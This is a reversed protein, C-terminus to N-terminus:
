KKLNYGCQNCFVADVTVISGCNPCVVSGTSTNSSNVNNNAPNNNENKPIKDTIYSLTGKIGEDLNIVRDDFDKPPLEVSPTKSVGDAEITKDYPANTENVPAKGNNQHSLEDNYEKKVDDFLDAYEKHLDQQLKLQGELEKRLQNVVNKHQTLSKRMDSLLKKHEELEKKLRDNESKYMKNLENQQEFKADYNSLLKDQRDVLKTLRDIEKNGEEGM